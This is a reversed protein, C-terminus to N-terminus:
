PVPELRKWAEALVPLERFSLLGPVYPFRLIVAAGQQAVPTLSSADLVVFGGYGTDNDRETSIDAGAIRSVKLGPPPQLVVRERLSHQLAVAQQPSVDWDHLLKLKM